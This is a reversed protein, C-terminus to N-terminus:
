WIAFSVRLLLSLLTFGLLKVRPRFGYFGLPLLSRVVHKSLNDLLVNSSKIDYHIVQAAVPEM